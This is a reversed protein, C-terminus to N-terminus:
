GVGEAFRAMINGVEQGAREIQEDEPRQLRGRQMAPRDRLANLLDRLIDQLDVLARKIRRQMAELVLPPAFGLPGDRFQAAPGLIVLQGCGSPPLQCHFGAFPLAHGCGDAADQLQRSGM